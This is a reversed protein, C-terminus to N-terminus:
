NDREASTQLVDSRRELGGSRSNYIKRCVLDSDTRGGQKEHREMRRCIRENESEESVMQEKERMERRRVDDQGKRGDTWRGNHACSVAIKRSLFHGGFRRGGVVVSSRLMRSVLAACRGVQFYGLHDMELGAKCLASM